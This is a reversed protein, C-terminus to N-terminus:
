PDILPMSSPAGHIRLFVRNRCLFAWVSPTHMASYVVMGMQGLDAAGHGRRFLLSRVLGASPGRPRYEKTTLMSSGLSLIEGHASSSGPGAGRFPRAKSFAALSRPKTTPTSVTIPMLCCQALSPIFFLSPLHGAVAPCRSRTVDRPLRGWVAWVPEAPGLRRSRHSARWDVCALLAATRRPTCWSVRSPWKAAHRCCGVDCGCCSPPWPAMGTVATLLCPRVSLGFPFFAFPALTARARASTRAHTSYDKSTTHCVDAALSQSLLPPFRPPFVM